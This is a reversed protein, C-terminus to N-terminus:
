WAGYPKYRSHKSGTLVITHARGSFYKNKVRGRVYQRCDECEVLVWFLLESRSNAFNFSNFSIPKTFAYM